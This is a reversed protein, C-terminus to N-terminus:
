CYDPSVGDIIPGALGFGAELPMVVRQLALGGVSGPLLEGTAHHITIIIATANIEVSSGLSQQLGDTAGARIAHSLLVM